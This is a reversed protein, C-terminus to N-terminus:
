SPCLPLSRGIELGVRIVRVRIVRILCRSKIPPPGIPTAEASMLRKELWWVSRLWSLFLSSNLPCTRM